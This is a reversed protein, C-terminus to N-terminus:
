LGIIRKLANFTGNKIEEKGHRGIVIQEKSDPHRYIDHNSGNRYLYWGRKKIIKTLESWKM